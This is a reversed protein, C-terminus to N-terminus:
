FFQCLLRSVVMKLTWSPTKNQSITMEGSIYSPRTITSLVVQNTEGKVKSSSKLQQSTSSKILKLRERISNEREKKLFWCTKTQFNSPTIEIEQTRPNAVENLADEFARAIKV